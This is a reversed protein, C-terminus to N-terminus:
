ASLSSATRSQSCWAMPSGDAFNKPVVLAFRPIVEEARWASERGLQSIELARMVGNEHERAMM